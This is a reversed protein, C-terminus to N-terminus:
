DTTKWPKCVRKGGDKYREETLMKRSRSWRKRAKTHEAESQRTDYTNNRSSTSVIEVASRKDWMYNTISILLSVQNYMINGNILMSFMEKKKKNWDWLNLYVTSQGQFMDAVDDPCFQRRLAHQASFFTQTDRTHSVKRSWFLDQEVCPSGYLRFVMQTHHKCFLTKLWFSGLFVSCLECLLFVTQTRVTHPRNWAVCHILYGGSFANLVSVMRTHQSRCSIKGNIVCASDDQTDCLPSTMWM